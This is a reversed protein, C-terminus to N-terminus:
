RTEEFTAAAGSGCWQSRRRSWRPGDATHHTHTTHTRYALSEAPPTGPQRTHGSAAGALTAAGGPPADGAAALCSCQSNSRPPTPVDHANHHTHPPTPTARVEVWQKVRPDFRMELEFRPSSDLMGELEARSRQACV